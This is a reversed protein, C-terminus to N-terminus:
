APPDTVVVDTKGTEGGIPMTKGIAGGAPVEEEITPFEVEWFDSDAELYVTLNWEPHNSAVRRKLDAYGYFFSVEFEEEVVKEAEAQAGVVDALAKGEALAAALNAWITGLAARVGAAMEKVKLKPRIAWKLEKEKDVAMM